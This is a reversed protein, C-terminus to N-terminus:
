IATNTSICEHNLLAYDYEDHCWGITIELTFQPSATPNKRAGTQTAALPADRSVHTQQSSPTSPAPPSFMNPPAPTLLLHSSFTPRLLHISGTQELVRGM